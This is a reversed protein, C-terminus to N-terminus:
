LLPSSSWVRLSTVEHASHGIKTRRNHGIKLRRQCYGVYGKEELVRLITLVTTYALADPLSGPSRQGYETRPGVPGMIDLERDAFSIDM